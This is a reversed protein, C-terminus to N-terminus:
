CSFAAFVQDDSLRRSGRRDNSRFDLKVVVAKGEQAAALACGIAINLAIHLSRQASRRRMEM